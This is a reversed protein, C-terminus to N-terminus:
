MTSFIIYGIYRYIKGNGLFQDQLTPVKRGKWLHHYITRANGMQGEKKGNKLGELFMAKHGVPSPHYKISVQQFYKKKNVTSWKMCLKNQEAM